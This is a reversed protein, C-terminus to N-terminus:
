ASNRFANTDLTLLPPEMKDLISSRGEALDILAGIYEARSVGYREAALTADKHQEPTVQVALPIKRGIAKPAKYESM